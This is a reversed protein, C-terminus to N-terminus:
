KECGSFDISKVKLLCQLEPGLDKLRRRSDITTHACCSQSMLLLTSSLILDGIADQIPSVKTFNTFWGGQLGWGPDRTRDMSGNSLLGYYVTLGPGGWIAPRARCSRFLTVKLWAFLWDHSYGLRRRVGIVGNIEEKFFGGSRFCFGVFCHSYQLFITYLQIM